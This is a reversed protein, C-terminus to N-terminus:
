FYFIPRDLELVVNRKYTYLDFPLLPVDEVYRVKMIIRGSRIKVDVDKRKVPIGMEIARKYIFREIKRAETRAAWKAQETMLDQLEMEKVKSKSLQIAMYVLVAVFVLFIIVKIITGNGRERTITSIKTLM